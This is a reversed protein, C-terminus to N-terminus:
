PINGRAHAELLVARPIERIVTAAPIAAPRDAEAKAKRQKRRVRGDKKLRKPSPQIPDVDDLRILSAWPVCHLYHGDFACYRLARWLCLATQKDAIRVKFSASNFPHVEFYDHGLLMRLFLRFESQKAGPNSIILVAPEVFFPLV